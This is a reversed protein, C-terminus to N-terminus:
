REGEGSVRPEASTEDIPLGLLMRLERVRATWTKLGERLGDIRDLITPDFEGRKIALRRERRSLAIHADHKEIQLLFMAVLGSATSLQRELDPKSM